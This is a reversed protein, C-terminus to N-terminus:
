QWSLLGAEEKQENPCYAAVNLSKGAEFFNDWIDEMSQMKLMFRLDERNQFGSRAAIFSTDKFPVKVISFLKASEFDMSFVNQMLKNSLPGQIALISVDPESIKVDLALGTSFELSGPLADSDAISIM